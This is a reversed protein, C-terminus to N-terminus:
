YEYIILPYLFWAKLAGRNIRSIGSQSEFYGIAANSLVQLLCFIAGANEAYLVDTYM